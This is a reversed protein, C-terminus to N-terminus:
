YGAAAAPGLNRVTWVVPVSQGPLGTAPGSVNTVVLDPYDTSASVVALEAQNNTEANFASNFEFIQNLADARVSVRISGAGNTGDPLRFTASRLVSGGPALPGQTIPDYALTTNLLVVRTTANSITVQDTWPSAIVANGSNTDRWALTLTQGAALLPATVGLATVQLDSYAPPGNVARLLVLNNTGVLALQPEGSPANFQAFLGSRTTAALVNFENGAAPQYNGLLSVNLVGGLNATGSVALTDHQAGPLLGGLQIDLAGSSTQTYTGNILLRGPAAGGAMGPRIVASNTVSGTITNTGSLVGGRLQLPSSANVRGGGLVLSGQTQVFVNLSLTGASAEVTGSNAVNGNLILDHQVELTGRNDLAASLTRTGGAGLVSRIVGGVANTLAGGTVSLAATWSNGNTSTLEITGRNEVGQAVNLTAGGVSGNAEVRLTANSNALVLTDVSRTGTVVITMTQTGSIVATDGAGPVQQPSWKTSDIWTGNGGTWTITAASAPGALALALLLLAAALRRIPLTPKM